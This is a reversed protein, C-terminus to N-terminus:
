QDDGLVLPLQREGVIEMSVINVGNARARIMADQIVGAGLTPRLRYRNNAEDYHSFEFGYRPSVNWGGKATASAKAEVIEQNFEEEVSELTIDEFIKNM